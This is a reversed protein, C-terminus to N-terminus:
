SPMYIDLHSHGALSAKHAGAGRRRRRGAGVLELGNGAWDICSIINDRTEIEDDALLIKVM